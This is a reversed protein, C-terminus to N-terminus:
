IIIYFQCREKAETQGKGQSKHEDQMVQKLIKQVPDWDISNFSSRYKIIEQLKALAKAPSAGFSM